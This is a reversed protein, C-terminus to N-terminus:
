PVPPREREIQRELPASAPELEVPKQGGEAKEQEAVGEKVEPLFARGEEATKTAPYNALLYNLRSLASRPHGTRNYWRAVYLEQAAMLEQCEAIKGEAEKLLPSDPYDAILRKFNRLAEATPTQDRDKTHLQRWNCMGQMFICYPVAENRPHMKEYQQYAVIAEEFSEKMYLSDAIKMEATLAYPSFPYRDKVKQFADIAKDWKEKDFAKMGDQSLQNAGPEPAATRGACASLVLALFLGLILGIVARSTTSTTM